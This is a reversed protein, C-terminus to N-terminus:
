DSDVSRIRPFIFLGSYRLGWAGLGLRKPQLERDDDRDSEMLLRYLRIVTEPAIAAKSRKKTRMGMFVLRKPAHAIGCYGCRGPRKANQVGSLDHKVVVSIFIKRARGASHISTERSASASFSSHSLPQKCVTQSEM